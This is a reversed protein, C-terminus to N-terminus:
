PGVFFHYQARYPIRAIQGAQSSDCGGSPASGGVTDIRQISTVRALRGASDAARTKLLLWPIAGASPADVRAQVTAEVRSGDNTQWYPGAGHHGVERGAADFLRAEPAVFVWATRGTEPSIRCEYIQVGTASLELLREAGAAPALAAPIEVSAALTSTAYALLTLLPILANKKM